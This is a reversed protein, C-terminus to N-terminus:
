LCYRRLFLVEFNGFWLGNKIVYLPVPKAWGSVNMLYIYTDTNETQSTLCTYKLFDLNNVDTNSTNLYVNLVAGCTILSSINEKTTTEEPQFLDNIKFLYM